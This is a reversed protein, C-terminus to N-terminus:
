KFTWYQVTRLTDGRNKSSELVKRADESDHFEELYKLHPKSYTQEKDKSISSAILTPSIKRPKGSTRLVWDGREYGIDAHNQDESDIMDLIDKAYDKEYIVPNIVHFSRNSSAFIFYSKFTHDCMIRVSELSEDEIDLMIVHGVDKEDEIVTSAIGKCMFFKEKSSREMRIMFRDLGEVDLDM